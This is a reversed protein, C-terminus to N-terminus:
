LVPRRVHNTPGVKVVHGDDVCRVAAEGGPAVHSRGAERGGDRLHEEEVRVRDRRLGGHDAQGGVQCIMRRRREDRGRHEVRSAVPQCRTAVDRRERRLQAVDYRSAGKPPHAVPVM